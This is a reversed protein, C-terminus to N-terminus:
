RGLGKLFRDLGPYFEDPDDAYVMHDSDAIEFYSCGTIATRMRAAEEQSLCWSNSARVLLVPCRIRELLDDWDCYDREISGMAARSFMYDYGEPTEVLSELFYRVNTEREFRGHLHDLAAQYTPYPIPWDGTLPDTPTGDDTTVVERKQEQAPEDLIALGKIAEPYLAALTGAVRGGMSHGIVVVPDLHLRVILEYADRAFDTGSYGTEPKQSLGHGRQDPAVVRYRDLYRRMLDTWTEGRGWRGHLCLLTKKGEATDRCFINIGNVTVFDRRIELDRMGAERARVTM